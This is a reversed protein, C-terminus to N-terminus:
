APRQALSGHLAALLPASKAQTERWEAETESAAVIGAGAFVHAATAGLLASRIAVVFEGDGRAGFVGFPGGYYGRDSHEHAGLWALAAARPAGGIASTPHLHALLRLIHAPEDLVAAFRTRLHRLGHLRQLEPGACSVTRCRPGLLSRIDRVVIAQEGHDKASRLLAQETALDGGAATGAIAETWVRQGTQRLLLEPSAGVFSSAGRRLAFRTCNPAETRLAQLVPTASCSYNGALVIRRAAVVKELRGAAIEARIGAVLRIWSAEAGSRGGPRAGGGAARAPGAEGLARLARHAENALHSRRAPCAMEDSGATLRLWALSGCREYVIRPLLFRADSFGRWLRSSETGAAFALGGVIRVAPPPVCDVAIEALQAFLGAAAEEVQAFREAGTGILVRAAGVGAYDHAPTPSWLVADAYNRLSLLREAPQVPVALSLCLLRAAPADGGLCRGLAAAIAPRSWGEPAFGDFSALGDGM